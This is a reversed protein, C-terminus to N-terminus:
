DYVGCGTFDSLPDADVGEAGLSSSSPPGLLNSLGRVAILPVCFSVIAIILSHFHVQVFGKWDISSLYAIKMTNKTTAIRDLSQKPQISSSSWQWFSGRGKEGRFTLTRNDVAPCFFPWRM